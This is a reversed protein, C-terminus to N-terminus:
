CNVLCDGKSKNNFNEKFQNLASGYGVKAKAQTTPIKFVHLWVVKLGFM